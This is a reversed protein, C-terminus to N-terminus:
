IRIDLNFTKPTSDTIIDWHGIGRTIVRIDKM